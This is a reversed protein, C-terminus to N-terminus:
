GVIEMAPNDVRQVQEQRSIRLWAVFGWVVFAAYVAYLIASPYYRSHLPEPVCRRPRRRDM